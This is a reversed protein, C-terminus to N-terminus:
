RACASSDDSLRWSSGWRRRWRPQIRIERAALKRGTGTVTRYRANGVYLSLVLDGLWADVRFLADALPHFLLDLGTERLISLLHIERLFSYYYNGIRWRM